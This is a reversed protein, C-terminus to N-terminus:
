APYRVIVIGSGGSANKGGGGTNVTGATNVGGGGGLGGVGGGGGAFYGGNAGTGTQTCWSAWTNLGNGGARGADYSQGAVGAGGGGGGGYPSGAGGGGGRAYGTGGNSSPQNAGGAGYPAYVSGGGSGGTAGGQRGDADGFFGTGGGGGGIAVGLTGFSTNSGNAGPHGGGGGAGITVTTATSITNSAKYWVGGAGGGGGEINYAGGGGGGAIVLIEANNITTTPTFTGSARFTHYVYSDTGIVATGGTALIPSLSIVNELIHANSGTPVTVGPNIVLLDYPGNGETLSDPRVAVVETISTRTVSKAQTVVNNTGRFYVEVNTAFNGGTITTSSDLAVLVTPTASIAFAGAGVLDGTTAPQITQSREFTFTDSNTGGLIVVRNFTATPSIRGNNSYGVTVGSSDVFYIDYTTDSLTSTFTYTGAPMPEALTFTRNGTVGTQLLFRLPTSGGGSAPVPFLSVAM